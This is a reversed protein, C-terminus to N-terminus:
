LSMLRQDAQAMPLVASIPSTILPIRDGTGLLFLKAAEKNWTVLHSSEQKPGPFRSTLYQLSKTLTTTTQTTTAATPDARPRYDGSPPILLVRDISQGLTKGHVLVNAGAIRTYLLFYTCFILLAISPSLCPPCMEVQQQQKYKWHLFWFQVTTYNNETCLSMYPRYTQPRSIRAFFGDSQSLFLSFKHLTRLIHTKTLNRCLLTESISPTIRDVNCPSQDRSRLDSM